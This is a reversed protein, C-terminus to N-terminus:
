KKFREIASAAVWLIRNGVATHRTFFLYKGDATLHAGYEDDASNFDPGLDVPTRWGGTGDSFSVYLDTGGRGGPRASYFVLFHGDPAIAPDGDFGDLSIPPGVLEVSTAGAGGLRATFIRSQLSARTRSFYMTGDSANSGPYEGLDTNIPAPLAAPVGWSRETTGVRWLDPLGSGKRGGFVISRGDASFTALTAFEFGSLFPAEVPTTWVGNALTSTYLWSRSYTADGVSVFCVTGDPSFSFGETWPNLSALLDPAFPVPTGGPPKQGFYAGAPPATLRGVAPHGTTAPAPSSDLVRRLCSMADDRVPLLIEINMATAILADAVDQGISGNKALPDLGSAVGDLSGRMSLGDLAALLAELAPRVDGFPLAELKATLTARFTSRFDPAVADVAQLYAGTVLGSALRGPGDPQMERIREAYRRAATHDRTLLAANLLTRYTRVVAAADSQSEAEIDTRLNSSVQRALSVMAPRNQVVDSPKGQIVYNRGPSAGVALFVLLCLAPGNKM